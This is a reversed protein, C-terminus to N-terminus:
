LKRRKEMQQLQRLMSWLGVSLGLLIGTLVGWPSWGYKYDLFNGAYGLIVLTAFFQTAVGAYRMGQALLSAEQRHNPPPIPEKM